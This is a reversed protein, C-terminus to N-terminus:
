VRTEDSASKKNTRANLRICLEFGIYWPFVRTGRFTLESITCLFIIVKRVEGDSTLIVSHHSGCAVEIVKKNILNTSIQCPVLSHNTTGNGLQSYANHGWTYIEGEIIYLLRNFHLLSFSFMAFLQNRIANCLDYMKCKTQIVFVFMAM